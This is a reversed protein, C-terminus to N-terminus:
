KRASRLSLLAVSLLLLLVSAPEPVLFVNNTSYRADTNLELIDRLTVSGLDIVGLVEQTNLAADNLYFFRDGDRVRGFQEAIATGLLEGLPSGVAHDEALGGLWPDINDISDYVSELAAALAADETIGNPTVGDALVGDTLFQTKRELGYAERLANYDPLGHDRGRQMNLTALDLGGAGPPGFLFNRVDDIILTDIQQARSYLGGLIRDMNTPDNGIITPDFFADRLALTGVTGGGPEILNFDPSLMSHGFRYMATSFENRIGADIDDQYGTYAPLDSSGLLAPLFQNYTIAQIEAGVIRRATQYLHEDSAGPTQTALLGAIRNHERAFLTHMAILGAQENVRIDGSVFLDTSFSLVEPSGANPQTGDNYPLLNGTSTKLMGGSMTRLWAGRTADSGYINSGDIYATIQNIQQRPNGPTNGTAPDFNSRTFPMPAPGLIDGAPMPVNASGNAADPETLDIDHDIFQGWQWVFNTLNSTNLVTTTEANIANSVVRPNARDAPGLMASMTDSYTAPVLRLLQTNTAGWNPNAVNNGMGDYSRTQASSSSVLLM